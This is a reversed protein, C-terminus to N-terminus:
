VKSLIKEALRISRVVAPLNEEIDRNRFRLVTWGLETLIREKKRDRAQRALACHSNGDCEVALRLDSRGLDVSM